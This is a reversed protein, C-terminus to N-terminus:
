IWWRSLFPLPMFPKYTVNKGKAGSTPFTKKIYLDYKNHADWFRNNLGAAM